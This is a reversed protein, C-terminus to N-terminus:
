CCPGSAASGCCPCACRSVAASNPICFCGLGLMGAMGAQAAGRCRRGAALLHLAWLLCGLSLVLWGVGPWDMRAQPSPRSEPALWAVLVLWRLLCAICWFVARFGFATALWGGAIADIGAIGGNVATIVGMLLGYRQPDDVEHYLM